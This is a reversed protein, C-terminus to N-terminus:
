SACAHLRASRLQRLARRSRPRGTPTFERVGCEPAVMLAMASAYPAVVLDDVLGRKFGLGPVGFAQYQYNLHADTANYGSESIGWPVKRSVGYEMQRAVAARYTQDLLTDEFTPMVLLPMLYEFMSGSWSLLTPEGDVGTLLRGLAFWHEQSVQGEAIAVYSALRAESALLDYYSSDRRHETLNYGIAFLKRSEDFLFDFRMDSLDLCVESLAEYKAIRVKASASAEAVRQKAQVLWDRADPRNAFAGDFTEALEVELGAVRRLTTASKQRELTFLLHALADVPSGENTSRGPTALPLASIPAIVSVDDLWAKAQRKLRRDM